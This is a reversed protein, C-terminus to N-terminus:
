KISDGAIASSRSGKGTVTFSRVKVPADVKVPGAYKLSNLDPESDDLTYYIDLGPFATNAKLMGGEIIVGPPPLRYNVSGWLYDMRPLEKRAIANAFANWAKDLGELRQSKKPYHAWEPDTSWAREALGLLKPFICYELNQPGKVTESWLQGQIGLINARGEASLKENDEYNDMSLPNGMIDVTAMQLVDLPVLEFPKRTDVLGAWYFGPELPDKDYAFDFYLNSANSMVVKYGMNALKYALDEGAVGWISLWVYPLFNSNVFEPNPVMIDRSSLPSDEGATESAVKHMAIEEWGATILQHQQLIEHYRKLFYTALASGSTLEPNKSLLESCAPSQEWIGAPVEDGGTHIATLPVGAEQYMSVVDAVVLELFQYVSEQCVCIVNDDYGQISKYVSLDRPDHLPYSTAGPSKGSQINHDRSKMAVIAARAHGPFNLEPIIEIHREQAYQLIEIFEQRSYHGTGHNNPDQPFPGSGYAPNLHDLENSTHGRVAGVETLEPLDKIALRWGEDDTLHFHFKNLKYFAMIDLLKKISEPQHFNRSADLHMGRYPFRPADFISVSPLQTPTESSWSALPWLAILSQTGYFVGAPDSGQITIGDKDINLHYSEAQTQPSSSLTLVIQAEQTDDTVTAQHGTTAIKQALLRATSELGPQYGIIINLPLEYQDNGYKLQKPSPIIPPINAESLVSLTENLKYRVEPTPIPVRDTASRNIQQPSTFAGMQFDNIMQPTAQGEFIMYLGSPADTIKIASGGCQYSFKLSEGPNLKQFAQTPTLRYYTGSVQTIEVQPPLSGEVPVGAVQNYYLAWGKAELTSTGRNTIEWSSEYKDGFNQVVSWTVLIDAASIPTKSTENCAVVTFALLVTLVKKMTLRNINYAM